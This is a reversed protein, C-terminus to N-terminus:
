KPPINTKRVPESSAALEVLMSCNTPQRATCPNPAPATAGAARAATPSRKSSLRRPRTKPRNPNTCIMAFRSPGARPPHIVSWHLQRQPKQITKGGPKSARNHAPKPRGPCVWGCAGASRRSQRPASSSAPISHLVSSPKCARPAPACRKQGPRPSVARPSARAQIAQRQSRRWASGTSGSGKSARELRPFIKSCVKRSPM